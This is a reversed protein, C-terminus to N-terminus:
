ELAKLTYNVIVADPKLGNDVQFAELANLFVTDHADKELYGKDILSERALNYCRASDEKMTPLDFNQNSFSRNYALNFLGVALQKYDYHFAGMQAFWNGWNTVTDIKKDWNNLHSWVLPKVAQKATDLLGNHLDNAAFGLQATLILEKAIIEQQKKTSLKWRNNPIGICNPKSLITDMKQGLDTLTSDNAWVPKYSRSKYFATILEANEDNIGLQSLYSKDLALKIRKTLPTDNDFIPDTAPLESACGAFLLYISTLLLLTHTKM